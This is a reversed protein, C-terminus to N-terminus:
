LKKMLIKKVKKSELNEENSNTDNYNVEEEKDLKDSNEEIVEAKVVKEQTNEKNSNLFIGSIAVVTALGMSLVLTALRSKIM